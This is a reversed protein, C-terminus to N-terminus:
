VKYVMEKTLDFKDTEKFGLKKYWKYLENLKPDGEDAYMESVNLYVDKHYQKALEQLRNMFKTGKGQRRVKHPVVVVNLMVKSPTEHINFITESKKFEDQLTSRIPISEFIEKFM